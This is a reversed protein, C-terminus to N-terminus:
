LLGDQKLSTCEREGVVLHDLLRIDFRNLAEQIDRTTDRDARTPDADGDPHNHAIVVASANHKLALRVIERPEISISRLSGRFVTEVRKIRNSSGLLAVHLEEQELGRLRPVFVDEADEVSALEEIEQADLRTTLEAVAQIQGAKVEGIGDFQTLEETTADLLREEGLESLLEHCIQKVNARETGTRLVIALLEADTLAGPGESRLRERPRESAPMDQIRYETM